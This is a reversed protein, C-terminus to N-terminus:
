KKKHSGSSLAQSFTLLSAFFHNVLSINIQMILGTDDNLHPRDDSIAHDTTNRHRDSQQDKVLVASYILIDNLHLSASTPRITAM